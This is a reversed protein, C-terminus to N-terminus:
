KSGGSAKPQTKPKQTAAKAKAEKEGVEAEELMGPQTFFTSGEDQISCVKNHYEKSILGLQFEVAMIERESRLDIKSPRHKIMVKRPGSVIYQLLELDIIRAWELQLAELREKAKQEQVEIIAKNAGTQQIHGLAMLFNLMVFSVLPEIFDMIPMMRAHNGGQGGVSAMYGIDHNKDHAIIGNTASDVRNFQETFSNIAAIKEDVTDLGDVDLKAVRQIYAFNKIAAPVDRVLENLAEIVNISSRLFSLGYPTSPYRKLRMVLLNERKLNITNAGVKQVFTEIGREDREITITESDVRKFVPNFPKKPDFDAITDKKKELQGFGNGLLIAQLTLERLQQRTGNLYFFEEVKEIDAESGSPGMIIEYNGALEDVVYDVLASCFPNEVYQTYYLKYLAPELKRSYDTVTNEYSRGATKSQLQAFGMETSPAVPKEVMETSSTTVKEETM